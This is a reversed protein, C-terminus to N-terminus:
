KVRYKDLTNLFSALARPIRDDELAASLFIIAENQHKVTKLHSSECDRVERTSGNDMEKSCLQSLTGAVYNFDKAQLSASYMFGLMVVLIFRKMTGKQNSNNVHGHAHGVFCPQYSALPL